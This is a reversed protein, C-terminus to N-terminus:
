AGDGDMHQKKQKNAECAQKGEALVLLVVDDLYRKKAATATAAATIGVYLIALILFSGGLIVLGLLFFSGLRVSDPLVVLILGLRGRHFLGVDFLGRVLAATCALATACAAARTGTAAAATTATMAAAMTRACAAACTRATAAAATVCNGDWWANCVLCIWNIRCCFAICTDCAGAHHTKQDVGATCNVTYLKYAGGAIGVQVLCAYVSSIFPTKGAGDAFVTM